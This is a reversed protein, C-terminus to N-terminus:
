GLMADPIPDWALRREEYPADEVGSEKGLIMTKRINGYVPWDGLSECAPNGTHAFAIWADRMNVSLRDAAPGSGHFEKVYNGFVFGVDLGHCAGLGPAPSEWTFLYNYAPVGRRCQAEVLRVAPMRFQLDTEIDWLIDAPSIAGGRKVRADRYVRIFDQVNERPLFEGLRNVMGAEDLAMANPVMMEFLRAEDLTSGAMVIVNGIAGRRAAELPLVPLIDGDVVPEMLAGKNLSWISGSTMKFYGSILQEPSCARLADIDNPKIGLTELYKGATEIAFDVPRATSAGSQLIAKRFLGRAKPMALLTGVSMGGASEGFVTVNAPDGGFSAINDQVWRLAAVQDLIGENGTSPIKGGTVEKLRLFGLPGLRYNITVFVLNGHKSLIKGDSMPSSGSGMMFGGGHIWVMVPRRNNDLGPTWVNLFLSDEGKPEEVVEGGNMMGGPMPPQMSIQGFALAPRVGKWPKVPAPPLWRRDGVPPAAYPIGRFVYLDDEFSGQIRGSETKVITKENQSM